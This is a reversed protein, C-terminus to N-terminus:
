KEHGNRLSKQKKVKGRKQRPATAAKLAQEHKDLMNDAVPINDDYFDKYGYEAKDAAVLLCAHRRPDFAYLIRYCRDGYTIRLEKM